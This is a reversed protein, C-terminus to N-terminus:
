DVPRNPTPGSYRPHQPGDTGLPWPLEDIVAYYGLDYKMGRIGLEKFVKRFHTSVLIRPRGRDFREYTKVVDFEAFKGMESKAYHIPGMNERGNLPYYQSLGLDRHKPHFVRGADDYMWNKCVPLEVDSCLLYLPDVDAPWDDSLDASNKCLRDEATKLKHFKLGKLNRSEIKEKMGERALIYGPFAFAGGIEYRRGQLLRKSRVAFPIGSLDFGVETLIPGVLCPEVFTSNRQRIKGASSHCRLSVGGKTVSNDFPIKIGIAKAYAIIELLKSDEEDFLGSTWSGYNKGDPYKSRMLQVLSEVVGGGSPEGPGSPRLELWCQRNSNKGM